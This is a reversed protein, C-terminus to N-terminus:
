NTGSQLVCSSRVGVSHIRKTVVFGLFNDIKSSLRPVHFGGQLPLCFRLFKRPGLVQKIM